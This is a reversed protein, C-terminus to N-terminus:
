GHISELRRMFLYLRGVILVALGVALAYWIPHQAYWPILDPLPCEPANDFIQEVATDLNCQNTAVQAADQQTQYHSHMAGLIVMALVTSVVATIVLWAMGPVDRVSDSQTTDPMSLDRPPYQM